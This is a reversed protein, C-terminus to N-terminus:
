FSLKDMVSHIYVYIYINNSLYLYFVVSFIQIIFHDLTFFKM